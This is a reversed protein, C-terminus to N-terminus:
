NLIRPLIIRLKPHDRFAIIFTRILFLLLSIHCLPVGLSLWTSVTTTSSHHTQLGLFALSQHLRQFSPSAHCANEKLPVLGASVKVGRAELVRLYYIETTNLQWVSSLKNHCGECVLVGVWFSLVWKPYKLGLLLYVLLLYIQNEDARQLPRKTQSIHCLARLANTTSLAKQCAGFYMYNTDSLTSQSHGPHGPHQISCSLGM